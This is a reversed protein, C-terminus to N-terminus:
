KVVVEFSYASKPLPDTTPRTEPFVKNLIVQYGGSYITDRWDNVAFFTDRLTEGQKITAAMVYRGAWVCEIGPVNCRSDEILPGFSIRWDTDQLCWTEDIKAIFPEGSTFENCGATNSPKELCAPVIFATLLIGITVAPMYKKM